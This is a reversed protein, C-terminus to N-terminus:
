YQCAARVAAVIDGVQPLVAAELTPEYAVPTDLAAVRKVPADLDAFLESAIWAAIEAGFGCTLVDEHVVVARGTKRVSEAVIEHDWPSLTRLDIIEVSIGDAEVQGAAQRSKEVTAGYTVITVQEGRRVYAGHGFPIV